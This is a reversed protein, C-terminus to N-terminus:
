ATAGQFVDIINLDLLDSRSVTLLWTSYGIIELRVSEKDVRSARVRQVGLEPIQDELEAEMEAQILYLTTSTLKDFVYRHLCCGLDPENIVEGKPTAFYLVLKQLIAANGSVRAWDRNPGFVLDGAGHCRV